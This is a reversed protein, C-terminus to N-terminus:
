ASHNKEPKCSFDLAAASCNGPLNKQDILGFNKIGRVGWVMRAKQGWLREDGFLHLHYRSDRKRLTKLIGIAAERGKQPHGLYALRFPNRKKAFTNAQEQQFFDRAVGHHSVFIRNLPLGWEDHMITRIFNSIAYFRDFPIQEVGRPQDVGHALLITLKARVKLSLFPLLNLGDGSTTLILIDTEISNRDDLPVYQVNRDMEKQQCNCILTVNHGSSALAHAMRIRVTVGGGVGKTDPLRGGDYQIHRDPCYFTVNYKM